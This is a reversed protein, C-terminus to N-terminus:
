GSIRNDISQQIRKAAEMKMEQTVHGYVDLTFGVSFHGLSKSVTEVDVGARIAETAFTHRLDHFRREPLGIATVIQKFEHEVSAHPTSNGFEDTFVLNLPNDWEVGAKLRYQYQEKQQARLVDIAAKPIIISRVKRSKTSAMKRQSGKERKMTLQKSIILEGTELNVRDWQIGLIESLRMGTYLAILYVREFRKGHIAKTFQIIQATDLPNIAQSGIDEDNRPITCGTAPNEKLYRVKVAKELATSLCGHINKRTKYCLTKSKKKGLYQLRNVFRQVMHPQLNCLSISGLAPNIHNRIYGEYQSKTSSKIDCCYESVWIELWESLPMKKPEIYEGKDVSTTFDRLVEAAEAYTSYYGGSKRKGDVTFVVQYEKARGKHKYITGSGNSSRGRAM